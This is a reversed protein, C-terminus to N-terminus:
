GSTADGSERSQLAGSEVHERIRRRFEEKRPEVTRHLFTELRVIYGNEGAVVAMVHRRPRLVGPRPQEVFYPSTLAIRSTWPTDDTLGCIALDLQRQDVAHLLQDTTGWFWQIEANLERAFERTLEVEIGAPGEDEDKLVWPPSESLGVRVTGDRVRQLTGRPDVPLGCGVASLALPISLGLVVRRQVPRIV